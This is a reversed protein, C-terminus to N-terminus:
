SSQGLNIGYHPCNNFASEFLIQRSVATLGAHCNPYKFRFLFLLMVAIEAVGILTIRLAHNFPTSSHLWLFSLAPITMVGWVMLRYRFKLHERITM